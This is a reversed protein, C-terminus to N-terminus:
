YESHGNIFLVQYGKLMDPDRHLDLETVVDYDYGNRDLWIHAHCEARM